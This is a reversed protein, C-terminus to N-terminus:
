YVFCGDYIDVSVLVTLTGTASTLHNPVDFVAVFIAPEGQTLGVAPPVGPSLSRDKFGTVNIGTVRGYNTGGYACNSPVTSTILFECSQTSSDPAVFSGCITGSFQTAASGTLILNPKVDISTPPLWKPLVYLEM